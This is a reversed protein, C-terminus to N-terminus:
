GRFSAEKLYFPYVLNFRSNTSRITYDVQILIVGEEVDSDTINVENLKVRPEHYLIADTVLNTVYNLLDQDIEAFLLNSLDCGYSEQMAREGPRTTILIWLSQHIDEEGSVTEVEAGGQSFTPPFSWGTGLFLPDSDM